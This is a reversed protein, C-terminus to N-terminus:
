PKIAARYNDFSARFFSRFEDESMRDGKLTLKDKTYGTYDVNHPPDTFVLDAREAQM